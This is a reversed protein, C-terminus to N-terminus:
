GLFRRATTIKSGGVTQKRELYKLMKHFCGPITITDQDTLQGEVRRRRFARGQDSDQYIMHGGSEPWLVGGMAQEPVVGVHNHFWFSRGWGMWQNLYQLTSEKVADGDAAARAQTRGTSQDTERIM